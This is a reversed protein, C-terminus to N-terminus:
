PPASVLDASLEDTRRKVQACQGAVLVVALRLLLRAGAPHDAPAIRNRFLKSARLRRAALSQESPRDDIPIANAM